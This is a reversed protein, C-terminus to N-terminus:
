FKEHERLYEIAVNSFRMNAYDVVISVNEYKQIIALQKTFIGLYRKETAKLIQSFGEFNESLTRMTKDTDAYDNVIRVFTKEQEYTAWNKKYLFHPFDRSM